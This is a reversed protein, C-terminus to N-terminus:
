IFWTYFSECKRGTFPLCVFTTRRELVSLLEWFISVPFSLMGKGFFSWFPNHFMTYFSSLSFSCQSEPSLIFWTVQLWTLCFGNKRRCCQYDWSVMTTSSVCYIINKSLIQCDIWSRKQFLKPFHLSSLLILNSLIIYNSLFVTTTFCSYEFITSPYFSTSSYLALFM